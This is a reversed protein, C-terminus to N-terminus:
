DELDFRHASYCPYILAVATGYRCRQKIMHGVCQRVTSRIPSTDPNRGANAEAVSAQRHAVKRRGTCLRKMRGAAAHDHGIISLDVVIFSQPTFQRTTVTKDTARM